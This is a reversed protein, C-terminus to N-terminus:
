ALLLRSIWWNSHPHFYLDLNFVQFELCSLLQHNELLDHGSVWMPSQDQASGSCSLQIDQIDELGFMWVHHRVAALRRFCSQAFQGKDLGCVTQIRRVTQWYPRARDYGCRVECRLLRLWMLDWRREKQSGSFVVREDGQVTPNTQLNALPNYNDYTIMIKGPIQRYQLCLATFGNMLRAWNWLLHGCQEFKCIEINPAFIVCPKRDLNEWGFWYISLENFPQHMIEM